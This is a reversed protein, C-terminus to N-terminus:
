HAIQKLDTDVRNIMVDFADVSVAFERRPCSNSSISYNLDFSIAMNVSHYVKLFLYRVGRSEYRELKRSSPNRNKLPFPSMRLYNIIENPLSIVMRM